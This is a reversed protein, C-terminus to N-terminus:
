LTELLSAIDESADPPITSFEDKTRMQSLWLV